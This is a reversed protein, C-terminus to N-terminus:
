PRAAAAGAKVEPAFVVRACFFHPGRLKKVQARCKSANVYQKCLQFWLFFAKPAGHVCLARLRGKDTIM